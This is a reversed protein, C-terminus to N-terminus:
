DYWGRFSEEALEWYRFYDDKFESPTKVVSYDEFDVIYCKRAEEDWLINRLACDDPYIHHSFVELLAEKFAARIEDRQTKSLKWYKHYDIREGPLKTMLIFVAYGEAMKQEDIGEEEEMPNAVHGLLHPTSKCGERRLHTLAKIEDLTAKNPRKVSYTACKYMMVAYMLDLAPNGLSPYKGGNRAILLRDHLNKQYYHLIKKTGTIQYKVKMVAEKIGTYNQQPDKLCVCTFVQRAEFPPNAQQYAISSLAKMIKWYSGDGFRIVHGLYGANKSPFPLM